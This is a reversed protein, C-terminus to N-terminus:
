LADMGVVNGALVPSGNRFGNASSSVADMLLVNAVRVKLCDGLANAVSNLADKNKTEVVVTSCNGEGNALTIFCM